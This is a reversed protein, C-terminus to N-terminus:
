WLVLPSDIVFEFLPIPFGSDSKGRAMEVFGIGQFHFSDDYQIQSGRGLPVSASNPHGANRRFLEDIGHVQVIGIDVGDRGPDQSSRPNGQIPGIIPLGNMKSQLGAGPNLM